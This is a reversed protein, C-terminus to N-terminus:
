ELTVVPVLSPTSVPDFPLSVNTRATAPSPDTPPEFAIPVIHRDYTPGRWSVAVSEGPDASPVAVTLADGATIEDSFQAEGEFQSVTRTASRELGVGVSSRNPRGDREPPRM